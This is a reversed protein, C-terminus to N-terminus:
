RAELLLTPPRYHCPSCWPCWPPPDERLELGPLWVGVRLPASGANELDGSVGAGGSLEVPVALASVLPAYGPDAEGAVTGAAVLGVPIALRSSGCGGYLGVVYDVVVGLNVSEGPALVGDGLPTGPAELAVLVYAGPHASLAGALWSEGLGLKVDASALYGVGGAESDVLLDEIYVDIRELGTPVYVQRDQCIISRVHYLYRVIPRGYVHFVLEEGPHAENGPSYAEAVAVRGEYSYGAVEASGNLLGPPGGAGLGVGAAVVFGLGAEHSGPLTLSGALVGESAGARGSNRLVLLPLAAWHRGGEFAVPAGGSGALAEAVDVFWVPWWEYYYHCSPDEYAAPLAEPGPRVSWSFRSGLPVDVRGPLSAAPFARVESLLVRDETLGTVEVVVVRAGALGERRLDVTLVAPGPGRVGDLGARGLVVESGGELLGKVAVYVSVVRDAPDLHVAVVLRPPAGEVPERGLAALVGAAVVAVVAAVALLARRRM